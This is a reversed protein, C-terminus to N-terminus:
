VDDAWQIALLYPLLAASAKNVVFKRKLAPMRVCFEPVNGLIVYLVFM